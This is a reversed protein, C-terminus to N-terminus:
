AQEWEKRLYDLVKRAFGVEANFGSAEVSLPGDYGGEKLVRFFPRYDSTGSNGPPTRDADSVHVHRIWPVAPRLEELPENNRWFHYSDVLCAFGPQGIEKVYTMAEAVSTVINCEKRSLPELVLTIGRASALQTAMRAFDMIQRRAKQGDWGEPVKRAGGSGFVLVKIGVRAAREVVVRMYDELRRLDAEPGVMKMAGPVLCNAAYVPLAAARLREMGKWESEPLHGQLLNQVHEEIFDWGAEKMVPSKEISTCVGFQM